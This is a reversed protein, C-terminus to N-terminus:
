GGGQGQCRIVSRSTLDSKVLWERSIEPFLTRRRSAMLLMRTNAAVRTTAEDMASAATGPCWTVESGPQSPGRVEFINEPMRGAPSDQVSSPHKLICTHRGARKSMHLAYGVCHGPVKKAMRIKPEMKRHAPVSRRCRSRSPDRLLGRPGRSLRRAQHLMGRQGRRRAPARGAIRRFGRSPRKCCSQDTRGNVQWKRPQEAFRVTDVEDGPTGVSKRLGKAHVDNAEIRTM